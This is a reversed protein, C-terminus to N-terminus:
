LLTMCAKKEFFSLFLGEFVRKILYLVKTVGECFYMNTVLLVHNLKRPRKKLITREPACLIVESRRCAPNCAGHVVKLPFVSVEKEASIVQREHLRVFGACADLVFEAHKIECANAFFSGQM